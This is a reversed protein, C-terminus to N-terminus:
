KMGIGIFATKEIYKFIKRKGEPISAISPKDEPAKSSVPEVFICIYKM